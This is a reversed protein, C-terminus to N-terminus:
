GMLIIPMFSIVPGTRTVGLLDAGVGNEFVLTIVGFAAGVSLLYGVTAKIPVAISRFVMTLLVLSLGVVLLGFPLLADGLKDSVDIGVATTGTVALDVGYEDLFYDHMSRIEHVLEETEVSTPGGTPVVQVIGTD